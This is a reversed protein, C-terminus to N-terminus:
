MDWICSEGKSGNLQSTEWLFCILVSVTRERWLINWVVTPDPPVSIHLDMLLRDCKCKPSESTIQLTAKRYIDSCCAAFCCSGSSGNMEYNYPIYCGSCKQFYLKWDSSPISHKNKQKSIKGYFWVTAIYQYYGKVSCFHQVVKKLIKQKLYTKPLEQLLGEM